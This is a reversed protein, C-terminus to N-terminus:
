LVDDLSGGQEFIAVARQAVEAGVGRAVLANLLDSLADSQAASDELAIPKLFPALAQAVATRTPMVGTHALRRVHSTDHNIAFLGRTVEDDEASREQTLLVLYTDWKKPGMTASAVRESLTEFAVSESLILNGITNMAVVAVAFYSNEALLVDLGVEVAEVEFGNESFVASAIGLLEQDSRSSLSSSMM